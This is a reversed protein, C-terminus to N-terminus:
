KSPLYKLYSFQDFDFSENAADLLDEASLRNIDAITEEIQKARGYKLIGKGIHILLGNRNENAMMLQGSLQNKAQSLQVKGLKQEKLKKIEKEILFLSKQM